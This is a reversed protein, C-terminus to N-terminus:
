LLHTMKEQGKEKRRCGIKLCIRIKSLKKRQKKSSSALGGVSGMFSSLINPVFLAITLGYPLIKMTFSIVEWVSFQIFPDKIAYLSQSIVLYIYFALLILANTVFNIQLLGATFHTEM